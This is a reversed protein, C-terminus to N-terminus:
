SPAAGSFVLSEIRPADRPEPWINMRRRLQMQQWPAWGHRCYLVHMPAQCLGRAIGARVHSASGNIFKFPIGGSPRRWRDCQQRQTSVPFGSTLDTLLWTPRINHDWAHQLQNYSRYRAHMCKMSLNLLWIWNKSISVKLDQQKQRAGSAHWHVNCFAYFTIFYQPSICSCRISCDSTPLWSRM